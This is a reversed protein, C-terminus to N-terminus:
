KLDPALRAAPFDFITVRSAKGGLARYFDLAHADDDDEAVFVSYGGAASAEARLANFLRSGIGMRQYQDRVAIDYVFLESTETRTMPLVHATIGGVVVDDVIAALAWFENRRLLQDVYYDNLPVVEEGFIEGMTALLEQAVERDSSTLRKVKIEMEEEKLTERM